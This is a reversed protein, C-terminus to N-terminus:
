ESIRVCTVHKMPCQYFNEYKQTNSAYIAKIEWHDKTDSNVVLAHTMLRNVLVYAKIQGDNRDITGQNSVITNKYPWDGCSTFDTQLHKVEIKFDGRKPCSVEIDGTDYYDTIDANRPAAVIAPVTVTMGHKHLWEAVRFVAARSGQLRKVFGDHRTM